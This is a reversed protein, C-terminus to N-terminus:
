ARGGMREELTTTTFFLADELALEFDSATEAYIVPDCQEEEIEIQPLKREEFVIDFM